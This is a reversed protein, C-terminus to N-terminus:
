PKLIYVQATNLLTEQWPSLTEQAPPQWMLTLAPYSSHGVATNSQTSWGQWLSEKRNLCKIFQWQSTPVSGMSLGPLTFRTQPAIAQPSQCLALPTQLKLYISQSTISTPSTTSLNLPHQAAERSSLPLPLTSLQYHPYYHKLIAEYGRGTRGMGEAGYQSMGVGHGWGGGRCSLTHLFGEQNIDTLNPPLKQSVECYFLNSQLPKSKESDDSRIFQRIASDGAIWWAGQSTRLMWLLVRGNPQWLVPGAWYIDGLAEPSQPLWSSSTSYIAKKALYGQQKLAQFGRYFRKQFTTTDGELYWHWRTYRSQYDWLPPFSNAPIALFRKFSEMWLQSSDQPTKPYHTDFALQPQDWVWQLAQEGTHQPLTQATRKQSPLQCLTDEQKCHCGIWSIPMPQPLASANSLPPTVRSKTPLIPAPQFACFRQVLTQASLSKLQSLSGTVGGSTSYFYTLAPQFNADILHLHRTSQIAQLLKTTDGLFIGGYVQSQTTDVHDFWQWRKRGSRLAYNRAVIAQAKLTEISFSVSMEYPLVGMLYSELPLENILLTKEAAPGPPKFLALSGTYLGSRQGVAKQTIRWYPPPTVMTSSQNSTTNAVIPLLRIGMGQSQQFTQDFTFVWTQKAQRSPGLLTLLIQTVGRKTNQEWTLISKAPFVMPKQTGEDMSLPENDPQTLIQFPVQTEITLTEFGQTQTTPDSLGIRILYPAKLSLVEEPAELVASSFTTKPAKSTITFGVPQANSAELM